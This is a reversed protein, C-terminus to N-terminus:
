EGWETAAAYIAVLQKILEPKGSITVRAENNGYPEVKCHWTRDFDWPFSVGSADERNSGHTPFAVTAGPVADAVTQMAATRLRRGEDRDAAREAYAAYRVAADDFLRAKIEKAIQEAPKTISFNGSVEARLPQEVWCDRYWDAPVSFCVLFKTSDHYSVSLRIEGAGEVSGMVWHPAPEDNGAKQTPSVTAGVLSLIQFCKAKLEPNM